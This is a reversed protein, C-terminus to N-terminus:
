LDNLATLLDESIDDSMGRSISWLWNTPEATTLSDDTGNLIDRPCSFARPQGEALNMDLSTAVFGEIIGFDKTQASFRISKASYDELTLIHGNTKIILEKDKNIFHKM